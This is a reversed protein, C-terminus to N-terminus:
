IKKAFKKFPAFLDHIAFRLVIKVGTILSGLVVWARAALEANLRFSHLVPTSLGRSTHSYYCLDKFYILRKKRIKMKMTMNIKIMMNMKM